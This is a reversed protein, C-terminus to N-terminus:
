ITHKTTFLLNNREHLGLKVLLKIIEKKVKKFNRQNEEELKYILTDLTEDKGLLVVVKKYLESQSSCGKLVRIFSVPKNLRKKIFNRYLFLFFLILVLALLSFIYETKYSQEETKKKSYGKMLIEIPNTQTQQILAEQKDYYHLKFSPILYPTDSIIEYVKTRQHRKKSQTTYLLYTTANNIHLQLNELSKINGEGYLSITLTLVEKPAVEKKDVTTTLQYNGIVSINDPLKKVRLLLPKASLSFKKTYKSRNNFNRYKTDIIEANVSLESLSFNGENQPYLEYSIEEVFSGDNDKYDRSNLEKVKIGTFEPEIIEYDELDKYKYTLKLETTEGLLISEKSLEADLNYGESAEIVQSAHLTCM